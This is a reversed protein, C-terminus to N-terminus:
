GESVVRPEHTVWLRASADYFHVSMRGTGHILVCEAACRSADRFANSTAAVDVESVHFREPARPHIGRGVAYFHARTCSMDRQRTHFHVSVTDARHKPMYVTSIQVSGVFRALHSAMDRADRASMWVMLSGGDHAPVCARRRLFQLHESSVYAACMHLVYLALAGSVWGREISRMMAAIVAGGDACSGAKTDPCPATTTGDRNTNTRNGHHDGGGPGSAM